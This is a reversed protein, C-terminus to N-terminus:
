AAEEFWRCLAASIEAPSRNSGTEGSIRPGLSARRLTAIMDEFSPSNKRLYWPRRPWAAAPSGHGHDAYWLVVLSYLLLATPATREVAARTWPQSRNAGISAKSEHFTVELPWRRSYTKLVEAAALTADTSFFAEYPYQGDPRWVVVCRLLRTPGASRWYATWTKLRVTVDRGYIHVTQTQWPSADGAIQRPSPTKPGWKSPRGKKPKGGPVVPGHLAADINLRGVMAVNSPLAALLTECSYLNDGVLRIDRTAFHSALLTLLERAQETKKKHPIGWKKAMRVPVNLRFLVPLARPRLDFPLQVVIALVVWCHGFQFQARSRTSTLPDHHTGAGFVNKGGKAHLTDDVAVVIDGEPVLRQVILDAVKLGLADVSWRGRNFFRYFTTWHKKETLDAAVLASSLTGTGQAMIWGFAIAVFNEFTRRRPFCERLHSLLTVFSPLLPLTELM